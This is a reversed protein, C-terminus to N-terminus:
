VCRMIQTLYLYSAYKCTPSQKLAVFVCFVCLILLLAVFLLTGKIVYM